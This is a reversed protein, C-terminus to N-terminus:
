LRVAIEGGEEGGLGEGIVMWEEEMERQFLAPRRSFDVLCQMDLQLLVLCMGWVLVPCSLETPPCPGGLCASTESVAGAGETGCVM